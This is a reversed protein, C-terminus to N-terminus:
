LATIDQGTFSFTITKWEVETRATETGGPGDSTRLRPLLRFDQRSPKGRAASVYANCAFCRTNKFPYYRSRHYAVATFINFSFKNEKRQSLRFSSCNEDKRPSNELWFVILKLSFYPAKLRFLIKELLRVNNLSTKSLSFARNSASKLTSFWIESYKPFLLSFSVSYLSM